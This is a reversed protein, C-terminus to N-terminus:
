PTDAKMPLEDPADLAWIRRDRRFILCVATGVFALVLFLVAAGSGKGTGVLVSLAQQLTSPTAMLPEFVYDNLAGGILFGLPITFFQLTNRCSYVRGQMEVPIKSRFITNMNANLFPIAIWGLVAGISWVPVSRGVALLLNETAMSLTIANFIVRVKSRPQPLLSVLISGAVNALGTFTNVLGLATTSGGNRSLLMPPLVADYTSAVLNIVAMFLILNLIGRNQRLYRLGDMATKWVGEQKESQELGTHPIKIFFGLSVFAIAFSALDIIIVTTIGGFALIATAIIPTLITVLSNSFSQLGSIRHFQEKPVILTVATTSAPNQFANMLGNITNLVYLHWVELRGNLLLIFVCITTLVAGTDCILMTKKKDWRDSLAGAFISLLVYPAYSCVSLLSTTMATGEQQYSWIILAFSTMSSGLASFAQTAWLFLFTSLGEFPNKGHFFSRKQKM